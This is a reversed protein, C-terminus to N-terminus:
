WLISQTIQKIIARMSYNIASKVNVDLGTAATKNTNCPLSGMFMM